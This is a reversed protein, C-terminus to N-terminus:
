MWGFVINFLNSSEVFVLLLWFILYSFLLDGMVREGLFVLNSILSDFEFYLVCLFDFWSYM